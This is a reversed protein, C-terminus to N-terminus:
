MEGSGFNLFEMATNEEEEAKKWESLMDPDSGLLKGEFKDIKVIAPLKVIKGIIIAEGVDLSSLQEALDESLNDSSELVYKKDTPEVIKLIIKNTMQSLINEDLGKPRQSVITLGVGFKRGERAIRSAWYKTLTNENKSLFVHAEEIICILPFRLGNNKKRFYEKRSDLIRRLYHAVVADMSDEDLHSLNVVNVKGRRIREIVDPATLDIVNSYRDIFEELKNLVEETPNERREGKGEEKIYDEMMKSFDDNLKSLSIQGEQIKKTINEKFKVFARRLIRFQISANERIELLTAFERPTLHLPNLKPEINNLNRIDSDYYEGHYDFIVTSGGLESIRQSLVAVTNSKGSGTAALIGLHRALANINLKVEVRTGVLTGIRINGNSYISKLEDETAERVPTGAAPPLDPMLCNNNFNCLLKIKAKIFFPISNNFKKLRQVIEIDNMDDDLMSSGRTVNTILGLAKINDYELIVYNGLRVPKEALMLAEQTTASGIVYGIIM